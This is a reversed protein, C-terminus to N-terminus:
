RAAGPRGAARGPKEVGDDPLPRNAGDVRVVRPTFRLPEGREPAELLAYAAVIVVDGKQALHAAAGNVCVQGSGPEGELLYTEFRQGNRLNWVAVKEHVYMGAREILNRDVTLSGEYELNHETVTARHIKSRLLQIWV